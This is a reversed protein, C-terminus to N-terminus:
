QKEAPVEPGSQGWGMNGVRVRFSIEAGETVAVGLREWVQDSERHHMM